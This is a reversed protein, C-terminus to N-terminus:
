QRPKFGGRHRILEWGHPHGRHPLGVEYVLEHHFHPVELQRLCREAESVEGSLLYEQLLLNMQLSSYLLLALCGFMFSGKQPLWKAAELRDLSAFSRRKKM